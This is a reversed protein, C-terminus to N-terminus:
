SGFKKCLGELYVQLGEADPVSEPIQFDLRIYLSLKKLFTMVFYDRMEEPFTDSANEVLFPQTFWTEMNPAIGACHNGRIARATAGKAMALDRVGLNTLQMTRACPSPGMGHRGKTIPMFRTVNVGSCYLLAGKGRSEDPRVVLYLFENIYEFSKQMNM